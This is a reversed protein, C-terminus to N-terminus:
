RLPQWAPFWEQTGALHRPAGSSPGGGASMMRLSFGLVRGRQTKHTYVIRAGNPSWAAGAIESACGRRLFRSHRGALGIALLQFRLPGGRKCNRQGVFLIRRGNPSFDLGQASGTTLRRVKGSRLNLLRIGGGDGDASYALVRGHPSVIPFTANNALRQRDTGDRRVSYVTWDREGDFVTYALSRGSPFFTPQLEDLESSVLPRKGRGDSRMLWIDADERARAVYAITRGDPSFSPSTEDILPTRTLRRERGAPTAIWIDSKSQIGAGTTRSFVIAGNGGPWTAEAAPAVVLSCLLALALIKVTKM